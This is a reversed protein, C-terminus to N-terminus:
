YINIINSYQYKENDTAPEFQARMRHIVSRPVFERGSRCDNFQFNLELPIIFNVPIVNIETLDLRDLVKNRSEETIHTADM